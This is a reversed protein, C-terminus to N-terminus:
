GIGSAQAQAVGDSYSVFISPPLAIAYTGCVVAKFGALPLIM